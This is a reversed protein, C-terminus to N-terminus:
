VELYVLKSVIIRREQDQCTALAYMLALDVTFLAWDFGSASTISCTL